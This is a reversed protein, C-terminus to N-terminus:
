EETVYKIAEVLYRPLVKELEAAKGIFRAELGRALEQSFEAKSIGGQTFFSYFYSAKEEKGQLQRIQTVIIDKEKEWGKPSSVKAMATILSQEMTEDSLGSYALDYELTWYGAVFTKVEQGDARDKLEQVHKVAQEHTFDSEVRWKRKKPWQTSDSYKEDLCIAPACNPMIDRDTVCAVRIGLLADPTARQFIKAYRRLGVGRVDVLSTGFDTFSRNLLKAITPLLLAEGPGEVVIVSRAFFLNAKTADLYRELYKYDDESLMTYRSAMPFAEGRKLLVINKLKVISALLPSHTTLIIQQRNTEAGEELSQILKLQRQAHVHAEPEEILLFSSRKASEAEKHLLLECAMSIINSTGLGVRGQMTGATKDIALDLKELLSILKQLDNIHSGAVEFRTQVSDGKLLMQDNMIGTLNQNVEQLAPHKELLSNSLNSIGVLSLKKLDMKDGYESEGESLKPINHIIQSLRSHKGSQMDSYADRLAKLYTIRLLERAAPSPIPGNGDKGTSLSSIPRPPNFSSSYKCKWHLYLQPVVTSEANEYSLCELFAAQEDSSLDSFKCCITIEQSIDENYFDSVEIRIWSYDTTGLVIRIADLIASKGSDNEGVLVTLGPNFPIMHDADDFCRFNRVCLSSLYM